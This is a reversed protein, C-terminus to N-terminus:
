FVWRPQNRVGGLANQSVEHLPGHARLPVVSTSQEPVQLPGPQVRGRLLQEALLGLLVALGILLVKLLRSTHPQFGKM